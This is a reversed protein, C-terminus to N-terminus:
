PRVNVEADSKRIYFPTLEGVDAVAGAMIRRKGIYAVVSARVSCLYPPAFQALSGLVKKILAGYTATGDGVFVCPRRIEKLFAEPDVAGDEVVKKWKMPGEWQYLAAYVEGKRADLIPCILDPCAPFHHALADLTSVGTVPKGV